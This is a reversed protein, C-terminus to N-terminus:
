SKEQRFTFGDRVFALGLEACMVDFQEQENETFHHTIHADIQWCKETLDYYPEACIVLDLSQDELDISMIKGDAPEFPIEGTVERFIHRPLDIKTSEVSERSLMLSMVIKHM